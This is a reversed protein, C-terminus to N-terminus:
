KELSERLKIIGWLCVVPNLIVMDLQVILSFM